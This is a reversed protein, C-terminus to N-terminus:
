KGGNYYECRKCFKDSIKTRLSGTLSWCGYIGGTAEHYGCWDPQKYRKIVQDVRLKPKVVEEQYEKDTLEHYYKM